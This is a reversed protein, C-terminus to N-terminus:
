LILLRNTYIYWCVRRCVRKAIRDSDMREMYGLWLLVGEDIREELGKKVGCLERIRANPVMDMMRIGLLERLNDMQVARVRSREKEKWLM